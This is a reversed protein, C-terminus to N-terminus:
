TAMKNVAKASEKEDDPPVKGEVKVRKVQLEATIHGILEALDMKKPNKEDSMFNDLVEHSAWYAVLFDLREISQGTIHPKLIAKLSTAIEVMYAQLPKADYVLSTMELSDIFRWIFSRSPAVLASLDSLKLKDTNLLVVLKSAIKILAEELEDAKSKSNLNKESFEYLLACIKEGDEGLLGKIVARGQETGAAKAAIYKQLRATM